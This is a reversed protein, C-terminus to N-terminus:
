FPVNEGDALQGDAQQRFALCLVQSTDQTVRAHGSRRIGAVWLLQGAADALVPTRDRIASPVKDDIFIDKVKKSGNLGDVRMRDGDRRSRVQLPYYLAAADFRVAGPTGEASPVEDAPLIGYELWGGAEPLFIRGSTGELLYSYPKREDPDESATLRVADYERILWVTGAVPTRQNPRCSELLNKRIQEIATFDQSEMTLSLYNLILKIFRRQLAVHLTSFEARSFRVERDLQEAMRRFVDNAEQELFDEDASALESLRNLAEAVSPNFRTLMPLTELRVRNRTYKTKLNSSDTCYAIGRRALEDLLDNKTIRLLPRVLKVGGAERVIPIGALGGLGTGRLIRMLVTEAQDGAHHALAIKGAGAARATDILFRYRLERAADQPNGGWVSLHGPVDLERYAFPIGLAEAQKRAFDAEQASEEQRFGHNAHAATLTWGWRGSLLFLLHLLATSDPGGSAAVVIRDGPEFLKNETIFHHVRETLDMLVSEKRM